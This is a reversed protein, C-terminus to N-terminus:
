EPRQSRPTEPIPGIIMAGIVRGDITEIILTADAPSLNEIRFAELIADKDDRETKLRLSKGVSAVFEGRSSNPVGFGVHCSTVGNPGTGTIVTHTRGDREVHWMAHPTFEPERTVLTWNQEVALSEVAALNNVSNRCVALFFASDKGALGVDPDAARAEGVLVALAFSGALFWCRM